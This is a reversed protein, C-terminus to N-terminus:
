VIFGLHCFCCYSEAEDDLVELDIPPVLVELPNEQEM